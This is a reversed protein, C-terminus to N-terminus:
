IVLPNDRFRRDKQTDTVEFFSDHYIAHACFSYDRPTELLDIGVTSKFWQRHEDVLSILAMPTECIDAALRTLDDFVAEGPTDLVAYRALAELRKSENVPKKPTEM